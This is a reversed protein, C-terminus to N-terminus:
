ARGRQEVSREMAERNPLTAFHPGAAPLLRAEGNAADTKVGGRNM